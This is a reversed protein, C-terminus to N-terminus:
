AETLSDKSNFYAQISLSLIITLMAGIFNLWLFSVVDIYFIYFITLQSICAAIFISKGKVYHIYFGVLFIGLVTGYFISGIINVLQILNEFLSSICAFGIAILGWFLTFYQTAYVYHKDSKGEKNRKYIDITSTAALSNLGSASSSMAASFIVALLLGLIGKPLHHLIFYLFVYDKDNTEAKSDSKAILEKAEERLEKEQITLKQMNKM